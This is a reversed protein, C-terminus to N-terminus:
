ATWPTVILKATDKWENSVGGTGYETNLLRLGAGELSPPVVLTDPKIDLPRGGEGKFAMMATRAAEYNAATLAAQSGFALQWLGYGVNCRARVGYLFEDNKFVPEDSSDTMHQLEYPLREQFITPKVARSTDLLFWPAAAGAQLNSVVSVSDDAAVVPHNANFFPQGDYCNTTFGAKLLTFIMEDPHTEATNGMEELIPSLLGYKDDEVSVRPVSISSEYLKNKITYGSAVLNKVIRPGVWERLSPFNNIWGYQEESSVSPIFLAVKKYYSPASMRGKTFAANFSATLTKLNTSNILM